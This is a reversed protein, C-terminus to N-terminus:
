KFRLIYLKDHTNTKDLFRKKFHLLSKKKVKIKKCWFISYKNCENQIIHRRRRQQQQICRHAHTHTYAKLNLKEDQSSISIMVSYFDKVNKKRTAQYLYRTADCDNPM